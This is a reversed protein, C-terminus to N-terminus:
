WTTSQGTSRATTSAEHSTASSSQHNGFRYATKEFSQLVSSTSLPSTQVNGRSKRKLLGECYENGRGDFNLLLSIPSAHRDCCLFEIAAPRCCGVHPLITSTLVVPMQLEASCFRLLLIPVLRRYASEASSGLGREYRSEPPEWLGRKLEDTYSM